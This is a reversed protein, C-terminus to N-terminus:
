GEKDKHRQRKVAPRVIVQGGKCAPVGGKILLLNREVDVRVVELNQVTRRVHGLHGAMKKGKFVKGPFQCQGISGPARHSLSNGHSMRQSSFHHRKIVGSFGKGKSTGTVDVRQGVTFVDVRIDTGPVLGGQEDAHLRYEVLGAAASQLGFSAYQGAQAKRLSRSKAKGWAVQVAQRGDQRAPLVRCVKNTDVEIVTVPLSRGAETFVRTMGRKRGVIGIAM